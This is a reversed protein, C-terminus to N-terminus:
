RRLIKRSILNLMWRFEEVHLGWAVLAYTIFSLGGTLMVLLAETFINGAGLQPYLVVLSIRAVASMIAGALLTKLATSVLRQQMLGGGLVRSLLFASVTAHVIHKVSDAIMLSYLGFRPLLLEVTLMYIVLSLIGVLTPTLTDKRAYFAYVILLDIAAFPLGILYLRLAHVTIATDHSTFAGHEFLLQVIPTALVMLGLTAPVILTTTLRLGLGLTDMFARENRTTFAAVQAALTPLIAVSIASAVLGQPFQILTTAWNMYAISGEGTGSARNYSYTRAVLTDLLLSLMVPAYLLAISKLSPHRWNFTFRLKSGRLGWLQLVMQLIAGVLWGIAVAQIGSEPRAIILPTTIDGWDRFPQFTVQLPPVLLLTFLAISGNFILGAFAPFTFSKLAYLTASFVAFLGMFILVPATFRLLDTALLMTKSSAGGAVVGVIQPAFVWVLAVLGTLIVISLSMLISVVRWLEEKGKVTVVDTLVPIIAGNVYGGILLDYVARIVVTAVQFADVIIGAGFVFTLVMERVLGLIRSSINGLALISSAGAISANTEAQRQEHADQALNASLTEPNDKGLEM